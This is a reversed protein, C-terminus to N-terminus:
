MRDTIFTVLRFYSLLLSITVQFRTFSTSFALCIWRRNKIKLEPIIKKDCSQKMDNVLLLLSFGESNKFFKNYEEKYKYLM